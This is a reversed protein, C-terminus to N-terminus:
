GGFMARIDAQIAPLLGPNATKAANLFTAHQGRVNRILAAARPLDSPRTVALSAAVLGTLAPDLPPKRAVQEFADLMMRHPDDRGLLCMLLDFRGAEALVAGARANRLADHAIDDSILATLADERVEAPLDDAELRALLAESLDPGRGLHLALHVVRADEHGLLDACAPHGLAEFVADSPAVAGEPAGLRAADILAERTIM